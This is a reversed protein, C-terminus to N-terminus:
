STIFQVRTDRLTDHIATKNAVMIPIGRPKRIDSLWNLPFLTIKVSNFVIIARGVTTTPNNTNAQMELCPGRPRSPSRNVGVAITIPCNISAVGMIVARAMEAM